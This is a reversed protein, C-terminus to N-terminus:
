KANFVEILKQIVVSADEIDIVESSTTTKSVSIDEETEYDGYVDEDDTFTLDLEDTKDDDVIQTIPQTCGIDTLIVSLLQNTYSEEKARGVFDIIESQTFKNKLSTIPSTFSGYCMLPLYKITIDASDKILYYAGKKIITVGTDPKNSAIKAPRMLNRQRIESNSIIKEEFTMVINILNAM